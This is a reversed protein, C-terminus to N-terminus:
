FTLKQYRDNSRSFNFIKFLYFHQTLSQISYAHLDLVRPGHHFVFCIDGPKTKTNGKKEIM